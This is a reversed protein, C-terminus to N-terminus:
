ILRAHSELLPADPSPKAAVDLRDVSGWSGYLGTDLLSCVSELGSALLQKGFVFRDRAVRPWCTLPRWDGQDDEEM